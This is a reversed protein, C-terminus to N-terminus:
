MQNVPALALQTLVVPIPVRPMPVIAGVMSDRLM